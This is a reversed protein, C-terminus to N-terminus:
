GKAMIGVEAVKARVRQPSLGLRPSVLTKLLGNNVTTSPSTGKGMVNIVMSGIVVRPWLRLLTRLTRSPWGMRALAYTRMDEHSGQCVPCLVAGAPPAKAKAHDRDRGPGRSSKPAQGGKAGGSNAHNGRSFANIAVDFYWDEEEETEAAASSAEPALQQFVGSIRPDDIAYPVGDMSVVRRGGELVKVAVKEKDLVRAKVECYKQILGICDDINKAQEKEGQSMIFEYVSKSVRQNLFVHMERRENIELSHNVAQLSEADAGQRGLKELLEKRSKNVLGEKHMLYRSRRWRSLFLEAEKPTDDYM